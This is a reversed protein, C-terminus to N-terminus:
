RLRALAEKAERVRQPDTSLEVVKQFHEVAAEKEGKAALVWALGWHAEVSTPDRLLVAVYRTFALELNGARKAALGEKLLRAIEPDGSGGAGRSPASITPAGGPTLGGSGLAWKAWTQETEATTSLWLGDLCLRPHDPPTGAYAMTFRLEDVAQWGAPEGKRTFASLPVSVLRWGSWDAPVTAEYADEGQTAPDDSVATITLTGAKTGEAYLWGNWHSMGSWDGPASRDSVTLHEVDPTWDSVYRGTKTPEAAYGLPWWACWDTDPVFLLRRDADQRAKVLRVADFRLVTGPVFQLDKWGGIAFGFSEVKRWAVPGPVGCFGRPELHLLRWGQWDVPVLSRTYETRHTDANESGLVVAFIAGTAKASHVWMELAGWRAWDPPLDKRALVIQTAASGPDWRGSIEGQKVVKEDPQLTAAGTGDVDHWRAAVDGEMDDITFPAPEEAAGAGAVVLAILSSIITARHTM